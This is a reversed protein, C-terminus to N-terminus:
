FGFDMIEYEDPIEFDGDRVEGVVLKRVEMIYDDEPSPGSSEMRMPIGYEQHIWMKYEVEDSHDIIVYTEVGNITEEGLYTLNEWDEEIMFEDIRPEEEFDEEMPVSDEIPFRMATMASPDLTYYYEEDLITIFTQGEWEGESRMKEDMIWIQTTYSGMERSDMTMEYSFNVPYEMSGFLTELDMDEGTEEEEGNTTEEEEDGEEDEDIEEDQGPSEDVIEEDDNDNRGCGYFALVPIMILILLLIAKRKTIKM